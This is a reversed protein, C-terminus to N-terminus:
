LPTQIRWQPQKQRNNRNQQQKNPNITTLRKQDRHHYM